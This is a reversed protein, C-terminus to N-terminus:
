ASRDSRPQRLMEPINPDVELEFSRMFWAVTEYCGVAFVVDLLQPIDLKAALVSWTEASIVGDDILEDVARILATELPEFFPADPGFAIRGIEEDTLGADRAQFVHQGWLYASRRKAAVRLILFQRQRATLTTAWLVHGNFTMFARALDTHHAFTGLTAGAMPRNERVPEPHRRRPPSMAALAERMEPPWEKRPVPPVRSM